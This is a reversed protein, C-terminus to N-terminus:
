GVGVSNLLLSSVACRVPPFVLGRPRGWHRTCHPVPACLLACSGHFMGSRRSHTQPARKQPSDSPRGRVTERGEAAGTMPGRQLRQQPPLSAWLPSLAPRQDLGRPDIHGSSPQLGTVDAWRGPGKCPRVGLFLPHVGDTTSMQNAMLPGESFNSKAEWTWPKSLNTFWVSEKRKTLYKRWMNLCNAGEPGESGELGPARSGQRPVSSLTM